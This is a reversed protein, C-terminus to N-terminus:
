TGLRSTVLGVTGPPSYNNNRALSLKTRSMGASSPFNQLRKKCHLSAFWSVKVGPVSVLPQTGPLRHYLIFINIILSCKKLHIGLGLCPRDKLQKEWCKSLNWLELRVRISIVQGGEAWTALVPLCAIHTARGFSPPPPHNKPGFSLSCISVTL